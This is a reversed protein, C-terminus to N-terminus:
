RAPPDVPFLAAVEFSMTHNGAARESAHEREAFVLASLGDPFPGAHSRIGTETDRCIVLHPLDMEERAAAGVADSVFGRVVEGYLAERWGDDDRHM